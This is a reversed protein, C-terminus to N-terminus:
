EGEDLNGVIKALETLAQLSELQSKYAKTIERKMLNLDEMTVLRNEESASEPIFPINEKAIKADTGDQNKFIIKNKSGEIIKANEDIGLKIEAKGDKHIIKANFTSAM